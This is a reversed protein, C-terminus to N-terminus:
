PSGGHGIEVCGAGELEAVAFHLAEAVAGHLKRPGADEARGLIAVGRDGNEAFCDRCAHVMDVGAIEVARMDDILDDAFGEMGIGVIQHQDALDARHPTRVCGPQGRELGFIQDGAHVVIQAIEADFRDVDDIEADAAQLSRRVARDGPLELREGFKLALPQDTM